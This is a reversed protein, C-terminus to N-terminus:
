RVPNTELWFGDFIYSESAGNTGYQVTVSRDFLYMYTDTNRRYLVVKDQNRAITHFVVPPNNGPPFFWWDDGQIQSFYPRGNPNNTPHFERRTDWAGYYLTRFNAENNFKMEMHDKHLRVSVGRSGDYIEVYTPNRAKEQFQYKTTGVSEVWSDGTKGLGVALSHFHGNSHFWDLRATAIANHAFSLSSLFLGVLVIKQYM